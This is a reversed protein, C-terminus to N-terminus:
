DLVKRKQAVRIAAILEEKNEITAILGEVGMELPQSALPDIQKTELQPKQERIAPM